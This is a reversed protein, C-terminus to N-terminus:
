SSCEAAIAYWSTGDKAIACNITATIGTATNVSLFLNIASVTNPTSTVNRLTVVKLSGKNWAGTFTAMRFTRSRGPEVVRRFTLPKQNRDGAEVKRVANYIRVAAAPDFNVPLAM